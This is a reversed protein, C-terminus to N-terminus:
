PKGDRPQFQAKAKGLTVPSTSVPPQTRQRILEKWDQVAQEAVQLAREGGPEVVMLVGHTSPPPAGGVADNIVLSIGKKIIAPDNAPRKLHKIGNCLKRCTELAPHSKRWNKVDKKSCVEPTSKWLYDGLHSCEVFFARVDDELRKTSVDMTSKGSDIERVRELWREVRALQEQWTEQMM